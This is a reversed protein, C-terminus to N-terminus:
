KDMGLSWCDGTALSLLWNVVNAQLKSIYLKMSIEWTRFGIPLSTLSPGSHESMMLVPQQTWTKLKIMSPETPKHTPIWDAPSNTVEWSRIRCEASSSLKDGKSEFIAQRHWLMSILLLCVCVCVCMCMYIYLTLDRYYGYVDDWTDFIDSASIVYGYVASSHCIDCIYWM